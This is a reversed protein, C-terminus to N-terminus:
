SNNILLWWNNSFVVIILFNRKKKKDLLNLFIKLSNKFNAVRSSLRTLLSITVCQNCYVHRDRHCQSDIDQLSFCNYCLIALAINALRSLVQRTSDSLTIFLDFVIESARLQRWCHRAWVNIDYNNYITRSKRTEFLM